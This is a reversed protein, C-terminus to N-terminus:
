GPLRATPHLLQGVTGAVRGGAAAGVPQQGGAAAWRGVGDGGARGACTGPRDAPRQQFWFARVMLYGGRLSFMEASTTTTPAPM